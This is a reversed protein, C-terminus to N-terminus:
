RASAKASAQNSQCLEDSNAAVKRVVYYYPTGNTVTADLYTAYTSTTKALLAYPGNNATSRYVNYGAVGASPAWTLQIKGPKARAALDAICAACAPHSASLVNVQASAV